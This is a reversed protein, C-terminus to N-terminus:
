STATAARDSTLEPESNELSAHTQALARHMAGALAAQFGNTLLNIDMLLPKDTIRKHISLFGCKDGDRDILDLKLEWSAELSSVANWFCKLEGTSGHRVLPPLLQPLGAAFPLNLSFGDFESPRLADLLIQCVESVDECSRLSEAARRVHLNNEIIRKQSATREFVRRMEKFEQYRLQPVGVGVGIGLVVLVFATTGAGHLLALSLLGFFASVGYLILVADRQCFGRKLLRHHIHERDGKFLPRGSLFRRVIAIVVDLIPLGFCVVPIAVAVMTPAKQSGALGLASLLFGIFLSGSDGLFITAPNFNFRLFGAIAGALVIALFAVFSNGMLLSSVLMVITSFLAAGAALGDLGDMLNFANTILLVWIITLSLGLVGGLPSGRFLLDFEHVGFGSLYLLTAALAQIGFKSYPGLTRFDDYLGLLFILAGSGLIPLAAGVSFTGRLDLWNRLFFGAAAIAIVTIFIPVGGLRPVPCSHLHRSSDPSDVWGRSRALDRVYRTLFACGFVSTVFLVLLSRLV